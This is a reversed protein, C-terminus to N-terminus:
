ADDTPKSGRSATKCTGVGSIGDLCGVRGLARGMGIGMGNWSTRPRDDDGDEKGDDDVSEVAAQKGSGTECKASDCIPVDDASTQELHRQRLADDGIIPPDNPLAQPLAAGNIAFGRPIAESPMQPLSESLLEKILVIPQKVPPM